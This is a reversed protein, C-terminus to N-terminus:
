EKSENRLIKFFKQDREEIEKSYWKEFKLAKINRYLLALPIVTLSLYIVNVWISINNWEYDISNGDLEIIIGIDILIQRTVNVSDVVFIVDVVGIVTYNQGGSITSYGDWSYSKLPNSYNTQVSQQLREGTRVRYDASSIGLVEVDGTSFTNIDYGYRHYLETRHQAYMDITLGGSSGNISTNFTKDGTYSGVGIVYRLNFIIAFGLVYGVVIGSYLIIKIIRKNRAKM